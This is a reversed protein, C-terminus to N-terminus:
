ADVRHLREPLLSDRGGSSQVGPAPPNQPNGSAAMFQGSAAAKTGTAIGNKAAHPVFTVLSCSAAAMRTRRHRSIEDAVEADGDPLRKTMRAKGGGDHERERKPNARRGRHEAEDIADQQSRIGIAIGSPQHNHLGCRLASGGRAAPREFIYLIPSPAALCEFRDARVGSKLVREIEVPVCVGDGQGEGAPV